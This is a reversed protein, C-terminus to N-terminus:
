KFPSTDHIGVPQQANPDLWKQWSLAPSSSNLMSLIRENREETETEKQVSVPFFSILHLSDNLGTFVIFRCQPAPKFFDQCLRKYFQRSFNVWRLIFFEQLYQRLHVSRFNGCYKWRCYEGDEGREDGRERTTNGCFTRMSRNMWSTLVVVREQANHSKSSSVSYMTCTWDMLMNAVLGRLSGRRKRVGLSASVWAELLLPLVGHMLVLGACLRVRTADKELRHTYCICSRTKQCCRSQNKDLSSIFILLCM